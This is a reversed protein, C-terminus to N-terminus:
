VQMSGWPDAVLKQWARIKSKSDAGAQEMYIDQGDCIADPGDAVEKALLVEEVKLAVSAPFLIGDQGTDSLEQAASSKSQAEEQEAQP